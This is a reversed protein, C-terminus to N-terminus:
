VPWSPTGTKKTMYLGNQDKPFTLRAVVMVRVYHNSVMDPNHNNHHHPHHPHNYSDHHNSSKDHQVYHLMKVLYVDRGKTGVLLSDSLWCWYLVGLAM